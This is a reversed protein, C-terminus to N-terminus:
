GRKELLYTWFSSYKLTSTPSSNYWQLKSYVFFLPPAKHPLELYLKIFKKLRDLKLKGQATTFCAVQIGTHPPLCRSVRSVLSVTYFVHFGQIILAWRQHWTLSHGVLLYLTRQVLHVSSTSVGSTTPWQRKIENASVICVTLNRQM